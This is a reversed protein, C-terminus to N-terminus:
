GDVVITVCEDDGDFSKSKRAIYTGVKWLCQRKLCQNLGWAQAVFSSPPSPSVQPVRCASENVSIFETIGKCVPVYYILSSPLVNNYVLTM